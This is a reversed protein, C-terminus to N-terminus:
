TLTRIKHWVYQLFLYFGDLPFFPLSILLFFLNIFNADNKMANIRVFVHNTFCSGWTLFDSSFTNLNNLLHTSHIEMIM